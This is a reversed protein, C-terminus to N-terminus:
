ILRIDFSLCNTPSGQAASLQGHTPFNRVTNGHFPLTNFLLFFSLQFLVGGARWWRFQVVKPGAAAAAAAATATTATTTTAADLPPLLLLEGCEAAAGFGAPHVM